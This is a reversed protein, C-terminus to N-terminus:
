GLIVAYGGAVNSGWFFGLLFTTMHKKRRRGRRTVTTHCVLFLAFLHISDPLMLLCLHLLNAGWGTILAGFLFLFITFGGGRRWFSTTWAGEKPIGGRRKLREM